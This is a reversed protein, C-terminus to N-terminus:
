FVLNSVNKIGVLTVCQTANMPELQKLLYPRDDGLSIVSKVKVFFPFLKINPNFFGLVPPKQAGGQKYVPSSVFANSVIRFSAINNKLKM